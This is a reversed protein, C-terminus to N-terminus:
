VRPVASDIYVRRLRRRWNTLVDYSVTKKLAAVDHVDITEGGQSGMIVVEDWL